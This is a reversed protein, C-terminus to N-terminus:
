SIPLVACNARAYSLIFGLLDWFFLDRYSSFLQPTCVDRIDSNDIKELSASCRKCSIRQSNVLYQSSSSRNNNCLDIARPIRKEITHVGLRFLIVKLIRSTMQFHCCKRFDRLLSKGRPLDCTDITSHYSKSENIREKALKKEVEYLDAHDSNETGTM